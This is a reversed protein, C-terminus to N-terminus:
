DIVEFDILNKNFIELAKGDGLGTNIVGGGENITPKKLAELKFLANNQKWGKRAPPLDPLLLGTGSNATVGIKSLENMTGPSATLRVLKGDYEQSYSQLPSIFTESTPPVEFNNRLIELHQESLTRYYIENGQADLEVIPGAPKKSGSTSNIGKRPNNDLAEPCRTKNSALGLPDVWGTPNPVYRYSNLGGALRIPDPTLYRGTSPNYYRHRNYHLGTEADFYQGQFRLPNDVEAIDLKLVNGYARYRASWCLRGDARTLEQPTGLHDLQYYCPEVQEPGEGDLLALPRFSDPEYLYTRYHRDGSEALLREGLWLFETNRGDVQKAIRRGFADYRYVVQRGDPLSVGILRHQCDYSYETVLKQGTGRRERVLNGHADYDFHRDGQTLLRNGRVEMQRADFQGGQALLNGAPDHVFSEPTEGRVGLLRDLPDYHFSRISKRSDEIAALNGSADYRYQRQYLHRQRQSVQHALLRGQEDYHYQSLLEGQQRQRERGSGFQHRTLSQGNLDIASLTGGTQYRYDVRNGDPLRCHILQGLADYAYHLTAWGQHERVLRDRLDYEYALPWTGDDVAVLRGLTDYRYDVRNGDPLTKALLRGTSDRQYTTRLESGDDGYETKELLQGKLDYRYATRRGDFGTEQSILGNGHYDLRYREGRENEIESLLLRANEYRYRLQSGDPNIRRSVLHLDDLYEYRTMRGQEDCESTVKGYANYRYMRSAGGPLTIQSLRGAADWQFRTIAGSEDQRTIQRGLTDYRYRRVSGDPLQEEILQGLPNWTLQHLSGDAHTIEVLCGRHDYAYHTVNGEPDTQRTIDGQTNREYKWQAEGRRVSRVFGDFYSYCTPEGEAPLLAELRGAQDYRYETITGLPDREAVLQGKEDYHRLTEGGDPDVQRVLRANDDHVYVEESGDANIATVSGDENWVYRSDMQPFSAWHRVARAQKGEGEWEWFFSAGGALQRELIVNRADYRYREAEYLANGAEILQGRENCRYRALVQTTHWCAELNDAPQYVQYEVREIHRGQYCLLLARGAKHSLRRPRGLRDRSLELRNGYADSIAILYAGDPDKRFHYFRPKEGAQALILESPDGGLYIAARSLRNTIAPRQADPIPFRTRRNEHDTWVLEDGDRDLRHSLAHSWGFGLGNDIEAASTRYLRTWAFRLPGDLECDTLTLLEEGTVMSVPCDKVCTQAAQDAPKGAPTRGPASADPTAQSSSLSTNARKGRSLPLTDPETRAIGQATSQIQATIKNSSNAMVEGRVALPKLKEAHLQLSHRCSTDILVQMAKRLLMAGESAKIAKSGKVALRVALGAGGTLIIGLLIDLLLGTSLEAVMEAATTPPLLQTWCVIASAYIFLLPEDSAILLATGLLEKAQAKLKEFDAENILELLKAAHEDLNALIGFLEVVDDWLNVLAKGMGDLYADNIQEMRRRDGVPALRKWEASLPGNWQELLWENLKAIVDDYSRYLADIEQISVEPYFKVQYLTNPACGSISAMGDADLVGKFQPTRSGIRTIEYPTNGIPVFSTSEFTHLLKLQGNVPCSAVDELINADKDAKLRTLENGNGDSLAITQQVDLAWGWLWSNAYEEYRNLVGSSFEGILQSADPQKANVGRLMFMAYFSSIM